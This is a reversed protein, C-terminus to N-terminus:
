SVVLFRACISTNQYIEDKLFVVAGGIKWWMM